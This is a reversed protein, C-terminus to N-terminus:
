LTSAQSVTQCQWAGGGRCPGSMSAMPTSGSTAAAVLAVIIKHVLAAADTTNMEKPATCTRNEILPRAM